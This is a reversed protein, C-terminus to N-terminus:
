SVSAPKKPNIECESSLDFSAIKASASTQKHRKLMELLLYVSLDAFDSRPSVKWKVSTWQM